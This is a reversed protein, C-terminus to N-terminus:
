AVERVFKWGCQERMMERARNDWDFADMVAFRMAQDDGPEVVTARTEISTISVAIYAGGQTEWVELRMDEGGRTTFESKAILAGIFKIAPGRNQNIRRSQMEMTAGGRKARPKFPVAVIFGGDALDDAAQEVIADIESPQPLPDGESWLGIAENAMAIIQHPKDAASFCGPIDPFHIGYSTGKDKHVIAFYTLITPEKEKM